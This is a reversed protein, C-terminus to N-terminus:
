EAARLRQQEARIFERWLETLTAWEASDDGGLPAFGYESESRFLDYPDSTGAGLAKLGASYRGFTQALVCAWPARQDLRDLDVRHVWYRRGGFQLSLWRVGAAIREPAQVPPHDSPAAPIPPAPGPEATPLPTVTEYVPVGAANPKMAFLVPVRAPGVPRAVLRADAPYDALLKILEYVTLDESM